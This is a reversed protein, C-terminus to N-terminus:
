IAITTVVEIHAFLHNITFLIILTLYYYNFGNFQTSVITTSTHFCIIELENSFSIVSLSIM